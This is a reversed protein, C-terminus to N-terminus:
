KLAEVGGAIETLEKTIAAQRLNNMVLTLSKTMEDANRTANGMALMRASHESALADAMATRVRGEVYRPLLVRLIEEASPEFIYDKEAQKEGSPKIPLLPQEVVRRTAMTVFHTFILDVRDVREPEEDTYLEVAHRALATALAINLQDGLGRFQDSVDWARRRFYDVARRGVPILKVKSRDQDKLRDEQFRLVNTNYSGCLGKDSALVIWARKKVDRVDFLPDTRVSASTALNELVEQMKATYPRIAEARGQARRLKAAAVMEMAKTIQRTNEVSRIRRRIQKLTAL